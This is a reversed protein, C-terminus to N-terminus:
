VRYTVGLAYRGERDGLAVSLTLPARCGVLRIKLPYSTGSKLCVPISAGGETRHFAPVAKRRGHYDLIIREDLWATLGADACILIQGDLDEPVQIWTLLYLNDGSKEIFRDLRLHIEPSTWGQDKFAAPNEQAERFAVPDTAYGKEGAVRFVLWEHGDNENDEDVDPTMDEPLRGGLESKMRDALQLTRRTTEDITRPIPLRKLCDIVALEASMGEKWDGPIGDAGLLIGLMSGCTACTCDTDMGFNVATVLTKKFDGDGYLLAMTIFALNMTVDTFNHSGFHKMISDCAQDQPIARAHLDLVHKLASALRCEDPIFTLGTRIADAVSGCTFAASETAALFM